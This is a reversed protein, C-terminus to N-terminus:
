TINEHQIHKRCGLLFGVHGARSWNKVRPADDGRRPEAASPESCRVGFPHHRFSPLCNVSLSKCGWGAPPVLSFFLHLCVIGDVEFSGGQTIFIEASLWRANKGRPRHLSDAAMINIAVNGTNAGDKTLLVDGLEPQCRSYIERHIKEDVYAIDGLDLGWPRINKSTVYKFRGKGPENHQVDPSHHTGDSIKACVESLKETKWVISM